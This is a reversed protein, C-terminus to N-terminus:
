SRRKVARVQIGDRPRLTISPDLEIHQHPTLELRFRRAMMAGIVQMEMLAFSNGICQRPGGAFPFYAMPPRQAAREPLFRDPDFGEPNPWYRVDRGTVYPSLTITAGAPIRYGGLNDEAIARRGIFYAPPYLRMTEEFTRLTYGLKPLQAFTPADGELSAAEAAQREAIEPHKSMLYIWWALANATTEHGALLLTMVEDRLQTDSMSQGDEDRADMLLGLLDGHEGPTARRQAIIGNVLADLTKRARNFRLNGPTPLFAPPLFPMRTRAETVELAVDVARGVEAAAGTLDVSFLTEGIIALTLAMMEEHADFPEGSQAKAEWRDLMAQTHKAMVDAFAAVKQRHFAPQALRRQRKWFDGESTLLGQGVLPVLRDYLAGKRYNMHRDQLVHKVLEAPTVLYVPVAIRMEVVDGMRSARAMLGLFDRGAEPLNGFLFTGDLRPPTKLPVALTSANRLATTTM